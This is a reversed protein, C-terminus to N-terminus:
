LAGVMSAPSPGQNAAASGGSAAPLVNVPQRVRQPSTAYRAALFGRAAPVVRGVVGGVAAGELGGMGFGFVQMLREFAAKGQRGVEYGSGSPNTAAKEPSLVKLARAYARMDRLEDANFMTEAMRKTRDGNVFDFIAQAQKQPGPETTGDASRTLRAWVGQRLGNWEDSGEGLVGKLKGAFDAAYKNGGLKGSSFLWGAVEEPSANDDAMKQIFRQAGQGGGFEKRYRAWLKRAATLDRFFVPDVNEIADEVATEMWDDLGARIETLAEADMVDGRKQAAALFKGARQRMNEVLMVSVGESAGEPRTSRGRLIALLRQASPTAADVAVEAAGLRAEIGDLLTDFAEPKIRVGAGEAAAYFAQSDAKARGAARQVGSLADGAAEGATTAVERGGGLGDRVGQRAREVAAAQTEDFQRMASAPQQGMVGARLRGELAQQAVDGTRQGPTTSIGLQDTEAGRLRAAPSLEDSQRAFAEALEATVDNPNAGADILERIAQESVEGQPTVGGPKGIISAVKAGFRRALRALIPAAAGGLAGGVGGFTAGTLAESARSEADTGQGAGAVAGLGAGAAAGRAVQGTTTRGTTLNRVIAPARAGTRAAGVVGAGPAAVAGIVEGALFTNPNAEEATTNAARVEGLTKAQAARSADRAADVAEDFTAGNQLAQRMAESTQDVHIRNAWLEDGFNLAAGQVAGRAFSEARSVDPKAAEPPEPSAAPAAAPETAGGQRNVMFDRFFGGGGMHPAKGDGEASTSSGMSGGNGGARKEMFDRFFGGGTAPANGAGIQDGAQGGTMTSAGDMGALFWEPHRGDGHDWQAFNKRTDAHLMNPSDDYTGFGRFGNQSLLSVLRSRQADDMGTLDIDVATGHMHQSNRAGGVRRNHEPDRYGSTIRIPQGFEHRVNDLAAVMRHDVQVEGNGKSAFEHPKFYRYSEWGPTM